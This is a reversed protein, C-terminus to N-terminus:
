ILNGLMKACKIFEVGERLSLDENGIAARKAAGTLLKKKM